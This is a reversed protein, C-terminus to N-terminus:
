AGVKLTSNPQTSDCTLRSSGEMTTTDTETM